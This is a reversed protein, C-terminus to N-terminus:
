QTEESRVFECISCNCPQCFRSKHENVTVKLGRMAKELKDRVVGLETIADLIYSYEDAYAYPENRWVVGLIERLEETTKM